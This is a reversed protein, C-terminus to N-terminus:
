FNDVLLRSTRTLALHNKERALLRAEHAKTSAFVTGAHKCNGKHESCYAWIVYACALRVWRSVFSLNTIQDLAVLWLGWSSSLLVFRSAARRRRERLEQKWACSDCAVVKHPEHVAVRTTPALLSPGFRGGSSVVLALSLAVRM